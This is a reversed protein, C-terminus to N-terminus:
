IPYLLEAIGVSEDSLREVSETERTYKNYENKNVLKIEKTTYLNSIHLKKYYFSNGKRLSIVKQKDTTYLNAQLNNDENVCKVRYQGNLSTVDEVICKGSLTYEDDNNIEEIKESLAISSASRIFNAFSWAGLNKRNEYEEAERKVKRKAREENFAIEKKAQVKKNAVEVFKYYTRKQESSLQGLLDSEEISSKAFLLKGVIVRFNMQEVIMNFKEKKSQDFSPDDCENKFSEFSDIFQNLAKETKQEGVAISNTVMSEASEKCEKTTEAFTLTTTLMVMLILIVKKM